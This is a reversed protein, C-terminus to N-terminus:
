RGKEVPYGKSVWDAGFNTAIYMAKVRTFGLSVLQEYAPRVNPCKTWPCCGCYLVIFQDHKLTKVRNRLAELGSELAGAGVYEAGPPHAEAYMVHPGVQFILPKEGGASHLIQALEEPPLLQAAPISAAAPGDQQGFANGLPVCLFALLSAVRLATPLRM